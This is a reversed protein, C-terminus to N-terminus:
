ATRSTARAGVSELAIAIAFLVAGAIGPALHTFDTYGEAFHVGIAFGFGALGSLAITQRFARTSPAHWACIAILLGTSMLGGGFGARDHAILPILRPSIAELGVRDLHMFTLDQPVFVTTMGVFLIVMGALVLGASTALLCWRGARVLAPATRWSNGSTQQDRHSAQTLTVRTGANAVHHSAGDRAQGGITATARASLVLGLLFCPLLALTATGHWTDLYGYGLYALFSLFGAVGSVAFAHWAWRQGDRLPHAALWLYIVGISILTGGFAVRDHFMFGVIRCDALRCLADADIGLYAIDHPLFERRTALFTAFLGSLVLSIATLSLLPRGDDVLLSFLGPDRRV